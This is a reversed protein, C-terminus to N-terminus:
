RSHPESLLTMIIFGAEGGHHEERIFEWCEHQTWYGISYYEFNEACWQHAMYDMRKDDYRVPFQVAVPEHSEMMESADIAQQAEEQTAFKISQWMPDETNRIFWVTLTERVEM